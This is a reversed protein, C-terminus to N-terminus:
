GHATFLEGNRPMGALASDQPDKAYVGLQADLEGTLEIPEWRMPIGAAADVSADDMLQVHLHPQSTNGTNGVAALVQGAEVREGKRVVISGRRLHAYAAFTGDDHAVVLHNGLVFRTGGLERVFGEGVLMWLLTPWTNRARQDRLGDSTRVVKGAAMVHVDAGFCAYQEPRAGRLGWRVLPPTTETAPATLDVAALQGRARTGHSPVQQGPSNLAAWTGRVPPAVTVPAHTVRPAVNLLLTLVALGGIVLVAGALGDPLLRVDLDAISLSIDLLVVVVLVVLLASWLRRVRALPRAVSM